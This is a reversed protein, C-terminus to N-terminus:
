DGTKKVTYGRESMCRRYRDQNLRRQYGQSTPVTEASAFLCESTDRDRQADSAGPKVWEEGSTCGAGLICTLAVLVTPLFARMM